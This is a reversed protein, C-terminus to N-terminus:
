VKKKSNFAKRIVAAFVSDKLALPVQCPPTDAERLIKSTTVFEADYTM